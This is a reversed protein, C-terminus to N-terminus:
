RGLLGKLLEKARDEVQTRIEQKKEEVRAKALDEVMRSFELKYALSEFPGSVRVPVTLGKLQDLNKGGQGESSGVVSAKALYNMQGAGIDVDGAGALRLFPSKMALDENHAVGNAIKLSATLESFDTKEGAKAQQTTDAKGGFKGQLDRLSQALNIGKIAGDKLSLSATGALAKKMAGVTDGRSTLDLQVNGRGELLDKNVVDKMLPNINIGVLNQQLAVSNGAANVALRGTASGQYLNMSLPAVDLRGGALNVTANLKELKINSVQLAGIRVAGRVNPGKLVSFELPSEKGAKGEKDPGSTATEPAKPPAYKDVNLRDVDLDFALALPTFKSVALKLAIKSEDFQTALDLKATQQAADVRLSGSVPVRLQKMPMKPSAVELNGALQSLALTQASVNVAVPSSLQGKVATDGAKADLKLLLSGIKLADANGQVGSLTLNVQAQRGTGALTASLSLTDSSSKDPSIDLKPADLKLEFTDAGTQGKASLVLAHVAVTKAATDAQVRGTSLGLNSVVTSSGAKEDRWTVQANTIKISAIDVQVPQAPQDKPADTSPKAADEQGMLDAFNFEGNKAKVLTAKLGNLELGRVQVQRSLLPLLAVSVRASELTVFEDKRARESLTVRELTIGIDPWLSLQPKGEIVLTRQKQALMARSLEAKVKDGDFLAYLAVAGVVLLAVVGGVVLGVIRLAKM